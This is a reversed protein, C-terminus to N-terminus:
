CPNEWGKCHINCLRPVQRLIKRLHELTLHMPPRQLHTVRCHDCAFNCTNNPEVFLKTPLSFARERGLYRAIRWPIQHCIRFLIFWIKARGGRESRVLRWLRKTFISM